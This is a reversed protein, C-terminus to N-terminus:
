GARPAPAALTTSTAPSGPIPLVRSASSAARRAAAAPICTAQPRQWSPSPAGANHGHACTTRWSAASCSAAM